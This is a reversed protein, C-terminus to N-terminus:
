DLSVNDVIKYKTLNKKVGKGKLFTEKDKSICANSRSRFSNKEGDQIDTKLRPHSNPVSYRESYNEYMSSPRKNKTNNAISESSFIQSIEQGSISFEKKGRPTTMQLHYVDRKVHNKRKKMMENTTDPETFKSAGALDVSFRQLPSRISVNDLYGSNSSMTVYSGPPKKQFTDFDKNNQKHYGKRNSYVVEYVEDGYNDMCTFGLNCTAASLM